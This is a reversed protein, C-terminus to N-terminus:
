RIENKGEDKISAKEKKWKEIKEDLIDRNEDVYKILEDITIPEAPPGDMRLYDHYVKTVINCGSIHDVNKRFAIEKTYNEGIESTVSGWRFSSMVGLVDLVRQKKYNPVSKLEEMYSKVEEIYQEEITKEKGQETGEAKIGKNEFNEVEAVKKDIIERYKELEKALDTLKPFEYGRIDNVSSIGSGMNRNVNVIAFQPNANAGLETITLYKEFEPEKVFYIATKDSLYIATLIKKMIDKNENSLESCNEIETILIEKIKENKENIKKEM